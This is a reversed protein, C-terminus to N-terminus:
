ARPKRMRNDALRRRFEELKEQTTMKDIDKPVEGPPEFRVGRAEAEKLLFNAAKINGRLAEDAYRLYLGEVYLVQVRKGNDTIWIKRNFIGHLITARNKAGKPRGRPNGSTGQAWQNKPPRGYGIEYNGKPKKKESM